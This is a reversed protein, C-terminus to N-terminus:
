GVSGGTNTQSNKDQTRTRDGGTIILQIGQAMLLMGCKNPRVLIWANDKTVLECFM